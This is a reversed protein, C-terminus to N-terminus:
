TQRFQSMVSNVISYRVNAVRLVQIKKRNSLSLWLNMIVASDPFTGHPELLQCPTLLGKNNTGGGVTM